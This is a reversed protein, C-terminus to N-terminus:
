ACVAHDLYWRLVGDGMPRVGLIPLEATPLPAGSTASRAHESVRALAPRKSQGTVLVAIFRAANILPYTMTIRDPPTVKPGANITILRTREDLAPSHPFLSATHGDGGMGLLVFDLRDQGKERWSLAEKLEEEYLADARPDLQNMPHAQSKPIDSHDLLLDAINTWNCREDDPPVRREDVLWLHTRKWPLDRFAPDVMLRRYFPLPTSGGSLAIHFDGFTRVCNFAHILLESGLSFHLDEDDRRLVVTGPLRPPSPDPNELPLPSLERAPDSMRFTYPSRPGPRVAIAPSEHFGASRLADHRLTTM